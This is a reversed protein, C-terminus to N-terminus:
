IKKKVFNYIEQSTIKFGNNIYLYPELITLLNILNDYKSILYYIKIYNYYNESLINKSLYDM